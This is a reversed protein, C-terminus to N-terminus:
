LGLPCSIAIFHNDCDQPLPFHGVFLLLSQETHHAVCAGVHSVARARHRRYSRLCYVDRLVLGFIQLKKHMVFFVIM